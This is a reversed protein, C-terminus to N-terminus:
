CPGTSFATGSRSRRRSDFWSDVVGVRRLDPREAEGPLVDNNRAGVGANAPRMVRKLRMIAAPVSLVGIVIVIPVIGNMIAAAIRATVIRRERAIIEEMTRVGRPCRDAIIARAILDAHRGPAFHIPQRLMSSPLPVGALYMSHM